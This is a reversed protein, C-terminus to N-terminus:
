SADEFIYYYGNLTGNGSTATTYIEVYVNTADVYTYLSCGSLGPYVPTQYYIGSAPNTEGYVRFSPVYGLNHAITITYPGGGSTVAQSWSGEQAGKLSKYESTMSLDVTDVTRVDKGSKSIKIGYSM